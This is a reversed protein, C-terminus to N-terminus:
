ARICFRHHHHLNSQVNSSFKISIKVSFGERFNKKDVPHLQCDHFQFTQHCTVAKCSHYDSAPSKYSASLKVAHQPLSTIFNMIHLSIERYIIYIRTIVKFVYFKSLQLHKRSSMFIWKVLLHRLFWPFHRNFRSLTCLKNEMGDVVIELNEEEVLAQTQWFTM